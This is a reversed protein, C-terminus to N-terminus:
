LCSAMRGKLFKGSIDEVKKQRGIQLILKRSTVYNRVTEVSNGVLINIRITTGVHLDSPEIYKDYKLSKAREHGDVAEYRDLTTSDPKGDLFDKIFIESPGEDLESQVSTCRTITSWSREKQIKLLVSITIWHLLTKFPLCYASRVATICYNWGMVAAIVIILSVAIAIM